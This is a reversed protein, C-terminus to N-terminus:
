CLRCDVYSTTKCDGNFSIIKIKSKYKFLLSNTQFKDNNKYTQKKDLTQDRLTGHKKTNVFIGEKLFAGMYFSLFFPRGQQYGM